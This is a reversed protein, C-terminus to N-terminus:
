TIPKSKILYVVVTTDEDIKVSVERRFTRVGEVLRDTDIDLEPQSLYQSMDFCFEIPSEKFLKM